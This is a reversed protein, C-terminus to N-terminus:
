QMAILDTRTLVVHEAVSGSTNKLHWVAYLEAFPEVASIGDVPIVTMLNRLASEGATYLVAGDASTGVIIVCRIGHARLMKELDTGLYKDAGSRVMPEGPLPAIPEPPMSFRPSDPPGGSYIVMMNRARARTLLEHVRPISRLCSPRQAENCWGAYMDLVLLATHSSDVTVPELAPPAPVPISKWGDIITSPPQAARAADCPLVPVVIALLFASWFAPRHTV